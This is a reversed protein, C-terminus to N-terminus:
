DAQLLLREWTGDVLGTAAGCRYGDRLEGLVTPWCLGNDTNGGDCRNLSVFGGSVIFGWSWDENFYWDSGNASTLAPFQVAETVQLVATRPAHALMKYTSSGAERCALMLQAKTCQEVIASVAQGTTGFTDQYCVQWGVVAAVPVNVQPGVASYKEGGGTCASTDLSCEASCALTGERFGLSQCTVGNLAEGDCEEPGDVFGDGCESGASTSAPTTAPTTSTLSTSTVSSSSTGTTSTATDSPDSGTSSSTATDPTTGTPSFCSSLLLLGFVSLRWM